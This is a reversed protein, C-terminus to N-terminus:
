MSTQCDTGNFGSTCECSYTGNGDSCTGGNQCPEPECEDIDAFCNIM